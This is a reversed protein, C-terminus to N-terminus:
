KIGVADDEVTDIMDELLAGRAQHRQLLAAQRCLDAAEELQGRNLTQSIEITGTSWVYADFLNGRNLVPPSRCSNGM